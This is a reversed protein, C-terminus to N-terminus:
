EAASFTSKSKRVLSAALRLVQGALRYILPLLAAALFFSILCHSLFHEGRLMQYGSAICGLFFGFLLGNRKGRPTQFVYYLSMLAFAGTPHGAPFCRGPKPQIFDAPYSELIRVFPYLGNYINLQYPCYVNTVYKAGAILAPVFIISLLMIWYPKNDPRLQKQRISLALRALCCLATVALLTKIGKYFFVSLKKHLEPYILWRNHPRDFFYKQLDTDWDTFYELLLVAALLFFGITLKTILKKM